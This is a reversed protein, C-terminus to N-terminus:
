RLGWLFVSFAEAPRASMMGPFGALCKVGLEVSLDHSVCGNWDCGFPPLSPLSFPAPLDVLFNYASDAFITKLHDATVEGQYDMIVDVFHVLSARPEIPKLPLHQIKVSGVPMDTLLYQFLERAILKETAVMAAKDCRPAWPAADSLYMQM